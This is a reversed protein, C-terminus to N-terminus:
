VRDVLSSKRLIMSPSWYPNWVYTTYSLSRGDLFKQMFPRGFNEPTGQYPAGTCDRCFGWEAVVVPYARDLDDLKQAWLTPDNNDHGAYVHWTYGVNSGAVPAARTGRLDYAWRDGGCLALNGSRARVVSLLREHWAKLAPWHAGAVM